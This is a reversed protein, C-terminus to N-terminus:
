ILLLEAFRDCSDLLITIPFETREKERMRDKFLADFIVTDLKDGPQLKKLDSLKLHLSKLNDIWKNLEM